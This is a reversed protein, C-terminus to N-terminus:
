NTNQSFLVVSSFRLMSVNRGLDLFQCFLTKTFGRWPCACVLYQRRQRRRWPPNSSVICCVPSSPSVSQASCLRFPVAETPHQHFPISTACDGHCMGQRIVTTIVKCLIAHYLVAIQQMHISIYIESYTYTYIYIYTHMCRWTYINSNIIPPNSQTQNPIFLCQWSQTEEDMCQNCGEVLRDLKLTPGAWLVTIKGVTEREREM